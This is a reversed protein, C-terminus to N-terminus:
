VKSVSGIAQMVREKREDHHRGYTAPTITLTPIGDQVRVLARRGFIRRIKQQQELTLVRDTEDILQFEDASRHGALNEAFEEYTAYSSRERPM